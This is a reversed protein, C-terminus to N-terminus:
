PFLKSLESFLGERCWILPPQYCQKVKTVEKGDSYFKYGGKQCLLSGGAIDWINKPTLSVVFDIKGSSLRGLKYAISGRPTLLFKDNKLKKYLGNNWESHSVEGEYKHKKIENVSTAENFLEQTAPNYVWGEGEFKESLFHGISVAWEPRNLIYERTGDLPDIAMLPFDWLSYNEESYITTDPYDKASMNEILVSLALDLSTVPTGDQKLNGPACPHLHYLENIQPLLGAMIRSLSQSLLLKKDVFKGCKEM